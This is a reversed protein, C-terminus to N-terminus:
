LDIDHHGGDNWNLTVSVGVMQDNTRVDGNDGMFAKIIKLQGARLPERVSLLTETVTDDDLTVYVKFQWFTQAGEESVFPDETEIVTRMLEEDKSPFTVSCFCLDNTGTQVNDARVLPATQAFTYVSDNILFNSAFGTTYVKIDKVQHGRPDIVLASACNAMYLRVHFTQSVNELVNMPQRATFLGTTHSDIVDGTAVTELQSTPCRDDDSLAVVENDQINAVALHMYERMPLNLTYSQESANMVHEDHSLREQNNETDYFSLDVDHAFDTFIGSLHDRLADAVQVETTTTLQTTLETAINTVLRLEYTLEYDEEGPTDPPCDSLDDDIYTSCATLMWATLM